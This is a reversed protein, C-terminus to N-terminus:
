QIGCTFSIIHYKDKESQSIESLIINEREIWPTVLPLNQTWRLFQTSRWFNAEQMSRKKKIRAWPHKNIKSLFSPFSFSPFFLPPYLSVNIHSLFMLRNGGTHVGILSHVQLEPIGLDTWLTYLWTSYFFLYKNFFICSVNHMPCHHREGRWLLCRPVEFLEGLMEEVIWFVAFDKTPIAMLKGM